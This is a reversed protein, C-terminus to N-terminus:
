RALADAQRFIAERIREQAVHGQKVGENDVVGALARLGLPPRVRHNDVVQRRGHGRGVGVALQRLEGLEHVFVVLHLGEVGALQRQQLPLDPLQHLLGVEILVQGHQQAAVVAVVHVVPVLLERGFAHRHAQGFHVAFVHGVENLVDVAVEALQTGRLDAVAQM